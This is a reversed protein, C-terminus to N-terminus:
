RGEHCCMLDDDTLGLSDAIREIIESHSMPTHQRDFAGGHRVPDILTIPSKKWTAYKADLGSDEVFRRIAVCLSYAESMAAGVM